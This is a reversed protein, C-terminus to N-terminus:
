RLANTILEEYEDLISLRGQVKQFTDPGANKLFRTVEVQDYKILAHVSRLNGHDKIEKIIEQRTM